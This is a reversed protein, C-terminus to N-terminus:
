KCINNLHSKLTLKKDIVIEVIKEETVNGIIIDNFSFDPFPENFGLTLYYCKEPSLAMYNEYFWESMIAFDHRLRNIM